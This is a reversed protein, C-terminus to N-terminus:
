CPIRTPVKKHSAAHPASGAGSSNSPSLTWAPSDTRQALRGQTALHARLLLLSHYGATAGRCSLRSRKLNRAKKLAGSARLATRTSVAARAETHPLPLQTTHYKRPWLGKEGARGRTSEGGRQSDSRALTIM